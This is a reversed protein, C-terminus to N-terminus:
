FFYFPMHTDAKHMNMKEIGSGLSSTQERYKERFM